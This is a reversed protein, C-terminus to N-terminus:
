RVRLFEVGRGSEPKGQVRISRLAVTPPRPSVVRVTRHEEQEPRMEPAKLLPRVVWITVPIFILLFLLLVVRFLERQYQAAPPWFDFLVIRIGNLSHFLVCAILGLEGLRFAWRIQWYYTENWWGGYLALTHDYLSPNVVVFFTDSIHAVLYLLIGLGTIRHILWSWQGIGGGYSLGEKFRAWAGRRYVRPQRLTQSM